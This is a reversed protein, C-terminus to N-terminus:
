ANKEPSAENGGGKETENRCNCGNPLMLRIDFQYFLQVAYTKARRPKSESNGMGSTGSSFIPGKMSERGASFRILAKM